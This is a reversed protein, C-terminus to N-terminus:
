SRPLLPVEYTDERVAGRRLVVVVDPASRGDYHGARFRRGSRLRLVVRPRAFARVPVSGAALRAEPADQASPGPCRTRLLDRPVEGRALRAVVYGGAVRLDLGAGGASLSSRCFGGGARTLEETTRTGRRWVVTGTASVGPPRAGPALGLVARLRRWPVTAPAEAALLGQGTTAALDLRVTGSVGCADLPGCGRPDPVGAFAVTVGGSVREVRYDVSLRRMRQTRVPAGPSSPVRRSAGLRLVLSSRVTGSFGPARFPREATLDVTRRGRRLAAPTGVLSPLLRAVDALVPGGCRTSLPDWGYRDPLTLRLRAGGRAVDSAGDPEVGAEECTAGGRVTRTTFGPGGSGVSPALFLFAVAFTPGRALRTEALTLDGSPGPEWAHRGTVDCVGLAVCGRAPDGRFDVEVRGAVRLPVHTAPVAGPGYIAGAAPAPAPVGLAACATLAAM